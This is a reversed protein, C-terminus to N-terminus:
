PLRTLIEEIVPVYLLDQGILEILRIQEELVWRLIEVEEGTFYTILRTDEM